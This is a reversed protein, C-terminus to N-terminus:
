RLARQEMAYPPLIDQFIRQVQSQSIVKDKFVLPDNAYAREDFLRGTDEPSQCAYGVRLKGIYDQLFLKIRPMEVFYQREKRFFICEKVDGRVIRVKYVPYLM